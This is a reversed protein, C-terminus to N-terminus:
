KNQNMFNESLTVLHAPTELMPFHGSSEIVEVSGNKYWNMLTQNMADTTIAQDKAGIIALCPTDLDDMKDAFNTETWALMYNHFAEETTTKRSQTLVHNYWKDTYQESTLFKLIGVRNDDQKAANHFLEKGADDLPSGTAPVPTIAVVSKIKEPASINIYQAAMGGMSHGMVHFRDWGLKNAIQIADNAIEAISHDGEIRFSTGYGRYDMLCYTFNQTDLFPRLGDYCSRDSWWGHLLIVKEEGQGIVEYTAIENQSM